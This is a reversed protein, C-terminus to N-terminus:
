DIRKTAGQFRINWAVTNDKSQPVNPVHRSALDSNGVATKILGMEGLTVPLTGPELTNIKWLKVFGLSGSTVFSTTGSDITKNRTSALTGIQVPILLDVETGTTTLTGTGLTIFNYTDFWSQNMEQLFRDQLNIAM